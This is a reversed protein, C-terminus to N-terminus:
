EGWSASTNGVAFLGSKQFNAYCRPAGPGIAVDHRLASAIIRYLQLESAQLGAVSRIAPRPLTM